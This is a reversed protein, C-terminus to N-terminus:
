GFLRDMVRHRGLGAVIMSAGSEHAVSSITAAPDGAHLEIDIDAAGCLRRLQAAVARKQDARRSAEVDPPVPVSAESSVVPLPRLVTIVRLADDSGAFIRGAVIAPDSQDRGDTA